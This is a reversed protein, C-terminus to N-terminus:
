TRLQKCVERFEHDNASLSPSDLNLRNKIKKKFKKWEFHDKWILSTLPQFCLKLFSCGIRKQLLVKSLLTPKLWMAKTLLIIVQRHKGVQSTKEALYLNYFALSEQLLSSHISPNRKKAKNLVLDCSKIMKEIDCSMSNETQRYRILFEPVVRFEYAEAIRLYFDWDACGPYNKFEPDFYGVLDLCDRKVICASANGIFNGVMLEQYVNKEYSSAKYGGNFKDEEDIYSSWAYVLGVSFNSNQLCGVLKELTKPHWTDDADIFTILTGSSELIGLNRAEVVGSNKQQLFVVRSDEDAFRKIIEPTNDASGDDVVVVEINPYTQSLVSSLTREVFLEANYAPIIVSVLLLDQKEM